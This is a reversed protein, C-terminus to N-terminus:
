QALSNPAVGSFKAALKLRGSSMVTDVHGLRARVARPGFQRLIM